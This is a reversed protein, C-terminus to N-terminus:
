IDLLRQAVTAQLDFETQVKETAGAVGSITMTVQPQLTDATSAGTVYFKLADIQVEPSTIALFSGGDISKEIRSGSLRYIVAEGDSSTFAFQTDGNVCDVLGGSTGCDYGTGTRIERSMSELAFNLNNMVSKLAQAKKNADVLSLLTGVAILMVVSFLGVAVIIEVLTFGRQLEARKKM